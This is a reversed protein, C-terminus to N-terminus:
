EKARPHAKEYVDFLRQAEVDTYRQTASLSAHGLLDQIARLDAGHALLHTAFSHRLAHPTASEPLGLFRRLSQMRRRAMSANLCGGRAGVFAPRAACAHAEGPLAQAYAALAQLVLPLVPVQRSKGGKGKIRLIQSRQAEALDGRTLALAEGIRLGCGYLLTLLAGDRLGIWAPVDSHTRTEAARTDADDHRMAAALLTTIADEALPRPLPRKLRPANLGSLTPNHALDNRDLWRFLNRLSAIARARTATGAGQAARESLWARFDVLGLAALDALRVEEGGRHLVLFRVFAGVDQSYALATHPSFAKEHRLWGQWRAFAACLDPAAGILAFPSSASATM